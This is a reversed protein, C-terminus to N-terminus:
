CYYLTCTLLVKFYLTYHIIRLVKMKSYYDATLQKIQM